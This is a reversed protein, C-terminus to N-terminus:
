DFGKPDAGPDWGPAAAFGAAAAALGAPIGTVDVAEGALGAFAGPLCSASGRDVGAAALGPATGAFAFDLAACGAAFVPL